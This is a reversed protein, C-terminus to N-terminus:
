GPLPKLRECKVRAVMPRYTILAGDGVPRVRPFIGRVRLYPRTMDPQRGPARTLPPASQTRRPQRFTARVYANSHARSSAFRQCSTMGAPTHNQWRYGWTVKSM